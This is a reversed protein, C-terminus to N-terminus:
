KCMCVCAAKSNPNPNSDPTPNLNLTLTLILTLTLTLSRNSPQETRSADGGDIGRIRSHRTPTVIHGHPGYAFKATHQLQMQVLVLWPTDLMALM